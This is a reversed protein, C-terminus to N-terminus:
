LTFKSGPKAPSLTARLQPEYLNQQQLQRSFFSFITSLRCQCSLRCSMIRYVAISNRNLYNVEPVDNVRCEFIGPLNKMYRDKSYMMMVDRLTPRVDSRQVTVHWSLLVFTKTM